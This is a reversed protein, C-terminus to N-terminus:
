GHDYLDGFNPEIWLIHYVDQVRVGAMPLRGSYRLVLFQEADEFGAPIPARIQYRPINESGLGHRPAMIIERWTMNARNQLAIAFDARKDDRLSRVDFDPHLYRLCFKPTQQNYDVQESLRTLKASDHSAPRQGRDKAM